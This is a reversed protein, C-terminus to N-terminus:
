PTVKMSLTSAHRLHSLLDAYRALLRKVPEDRYRRRLYSCALTLGSDAEIADIRLAFGLAPGPHLCYDARLGAFSLSEPRLRQTHVLGVEPASDDGGQDAADVLLGQIEALVAAADADDSAISPIAVLEVCHGVRRAAHARLQGAFPVGIAFRRHGAQAQLALDLAALLASFLSCHSRRAFDRVGQLTESGLTVSTRAIGQRGPMQDPSPSPLGLPEWGDVTRPPRPTRLARVLHDAFSDASTLGADGHLQHHTYAEALEEILVDLSWGDCVAAHAAIVLTRTRPGSRVITFRVLPAATLDFRYATEEAVVDGPTAADIWRVRPVVEATEHVSVRCGDPAFSMRLADHVEHLRGIAAALAPEDLEGQLEISAAEVLPAGCTDPDRRLLERLALTTDMGRPAPREAHSAPAAQAVADALQGHVHRALAELSPHELLLQRFTVAVGFRERILYNVPNLLLSDLGLELFSARADADGFDKGTVSGLIERLTALVSAEGGDPTAPVPQDPTATQAPREIAAGSRPHPTGPDLWYRRREFPYAPLPIRRASEPAFYASWDLEVRRLWLEGIAAALASSEAHPDDGDALSAIASQTQRDAVQAAALASLSGRPGVELVVRHKHKWVRQMAQAFLVPQVIHGAWHGPDTAQEASLLAGTVTSFIPLRPARLEVSEVIQRFGALAPEMMPSHFAHSTHLRKCRVGREALRAELAEIATDQGAAVSLQPGNVAAIALGDGLLPRLAEPALRVSLM